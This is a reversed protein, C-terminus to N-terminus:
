AYAGRSASFLDVFVAGRAKAAEALAASYLAVEANRVEPDPAGALPSKDVATPSLIM